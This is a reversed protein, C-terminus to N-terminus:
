RALARIVERRDGANWMLALEAPALDTVPVTVVGSRPSMDASGEAILAVGVRRAVADLVEDPDPATMTVTPPAGDRHDAGLWLDRVAGAEEPLAIFPEDRVEAFTLSARAALPHSRPLALHRRETTLVRHDYRQDGVAPLWVLAVDATGGALGCTLDYWDAQVTAIRWGPGHARLRAAIDELVDPHVPTHVGIRLVAGTAAATDAVARRTEDWSALLTRASALLAAGPETLALRSGRDLLTVRLTQELETIQRSLVPEAVSLRQAARGLHQEEAAVVFYRLDRLHVDVGGDHM